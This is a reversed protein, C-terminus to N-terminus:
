IDRHPPPTEPILAGDRRTDLSSVPAISRVCLRQGDAAGALSRSACEGAATPGVAASLLRSRLLFLSVASFHRGDGDNGSTGPVGEIGGSIYSALGADATTVCVGRRAAATEAPQRRAGPREAGPGRQNVSAM